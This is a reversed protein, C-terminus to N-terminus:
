RCFFFILLLYTIMIVEMAAVPPKRKPNSAPTIDPAIFKKCSGLPQPILSECTSHTVVDTNIPANIPAINQPRRVSIKPLFFIMIDAATINVAPAIYVPNAGPM